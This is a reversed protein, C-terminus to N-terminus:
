GGLAIGSRKTMGQKVRSRKLFLTIKYLYQSEDPYRYLLKNNEARDRTM